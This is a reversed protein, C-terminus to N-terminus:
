RTYHRCVYVAWLDDVFLACCLVSVLVIFLVLRSGKKKEEEDTEYNRKTRTGGM